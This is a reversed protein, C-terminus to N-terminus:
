PKQNDPHPQTPSALLHQPSLAIPCCPRWRPRPSNALTARPPHQFRALLLCAAILFIQTPSSMTLCMAPPPSPRAVLRSRREDGGLEDTIIAEEDAGPAEKEKWWRREDDEYALSPRTNSSSVSITVKLTLFRTDRGQIYVNHGQNEGKFSDEM